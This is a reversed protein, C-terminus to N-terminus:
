EFQKFFEADIDFAKVPKLGLENNEILTLLNESDVLEIALAGERTAERIAENTFYSTTIIIGKDARGILSNRLDSIHTRQVPNKAGYRKCQFLVKFTVFPNVRLLGIGDIGEDKGPNTLKLDELGNERLLLLCFKEFSQWSMSRLIDLLKERHNYKVSDESIIEIEEENDLNNEIKSTPEKDDKSKRKEAHIEVWKLFIDRAEKDSIKKEKGIKSLTWIGRKTSDLLGEWVLYQRAWCVQNHFKPTGSKLKEELIDDSINMIEAVKSSVEKPTGSGGLQRLSELLPDMWKLFEAQNKNKM